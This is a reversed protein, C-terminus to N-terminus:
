LASSRGAMCAMRERSSTVAPEVRPRVVFVVRALVDHLPQLERGDRVRAVPEAATIRTRAWFAGPSSVRATAVRRWAHGRKAYIGASRDPAVPGAVRGRLLLRSGRRGRHRAPRLVVGRRRPSTKSSSPKAPPSAPTTAPPSTTVPPTPTAPPPTEAPPPPDASDRLGGARAPPRRRGWCRAAPTGPGSESTAPLLTVFEPAANLNGEATFGVQPSQLGSGDPGAYYGDPAGHVCNSRVLNDDGHPAGDPYFSEVNRRIRSGAIVNGTVRAGNSAVQDNGSFIIGEGNGYIVNGTIVTRQADPYLQIGRDTNDYIWNDRIVTDEAASLYIGHEQNTAPTEGCGHIRSQEILTGASRGWVTNGVVFCISTHRNTVDDNRFVARDANVTPSPLDRSNAGDLFLNSITVGDAGRAVWVRADVRAQEGPASTLTIGPRTIKLERYPDGPEGSGEFAGSRLCGVQGPPCRTPWDSFPCCRLTSRAARRTRDARPRTSTAPLRLATGAPPSRWPSLRPPLGVALLSLRGFTVTQREADAPM